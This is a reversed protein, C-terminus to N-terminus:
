WALIYTIIHSFLPASSYVNNQYLSYSSMKDVNAQIQSFLRVYLDMQDGYWLKKYYRMIKM